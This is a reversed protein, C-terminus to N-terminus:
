KSIKQPFFAKQQVIQKRQNYIFYTHVTYFSSFGFFIIFGHLERGDGLSRVLEM